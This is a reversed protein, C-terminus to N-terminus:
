MVSFLTLKWKKKENEHYRPVLKENLPAAVFPITVNDVEIVFYSEVIAM